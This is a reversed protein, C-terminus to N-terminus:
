TSRGSTKIDAAEAMALADELEAGRLDEPLRIHGYNQAKCYGLRSGVINM